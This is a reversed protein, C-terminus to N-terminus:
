MCQSKQVRLIDVPEMGEELALPYNVGSYENLLLSMPHGRRRRRFEGEAEDDGCEYEIESLPDICLGILRQARTGDAM